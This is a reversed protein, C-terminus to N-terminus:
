SRPPALTALRRSIEDLRRLEWASRSSLGASSVELERRRESTRAALLSIAPDMPELPTTRARVDAPLLGWYLSLDHRAAALDSLENAAHSLDEANWTNRTHLESIFRSLALNYGTIRSQLEDHQIKPGMRPPIARISPTAQRRTFSPAAPQATRPAGPKTLQAQRSSAQQLWAIMRPQWAFPQGAALWQREIARWADSWKHFADRNNHFAAATAFAYDRQLRAIAAQEQADVEALLRVVGSDSLEDGAASRGLIALHRARLRELDEASLFVRGAPDSRHLLLDELWRQKGAADAQQYPAALRQYREGHNDAACPIASLMGAALAVFLRRVVLM